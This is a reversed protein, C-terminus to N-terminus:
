MEAKGVLLMLVTEGVRSVWQLNMATSSNFTKGM